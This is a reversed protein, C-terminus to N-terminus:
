RWFRKKKPEEGPKEPEPRIRDLLRNKSEDHPAWVLSLTHIGGDSLTLKRPVDHCVPTLGALKEEGDFEASTYDIFLPIRKGEPDTVSRGRLAISVPEAGTCRFSIELDGQCSEIVFGQGGKCIWDPSTIKANEDAVRILEISGDPQSLDIRATILDRLAPHTRLSRIQPQDEPDRSPSFSEAFSDLCLERSIRTQHAAWAIATAAVASQMPHFNRTRIDRLITDFGEEGYLPQLDRRVGKSHLKAMIRSHLEEVPISDLKEPIVERPTPIPTHSVPSVFPFRENLMRAQAVTEPDIARGGDFPFQLLDAGFRTYILAALLNHDPCDPTSRKLKHLMPDLLPACTISGALYREVIAKGFHARCRTERYLNLTVDEDALPRGLAEFKERIQRFSRELIARTADKMRGQIERPYGKIRNQAKRIFEEETMHWYDRVCEGGNGVFNYRPPTYYRAQQYIQKHFGQKTYLSINLIEEPTAVPLGPTLLESNNISFGFRDAMANAIAFDERHTHLTDEISFIFVDKLNVRSGLLLSLVLRSDFGGSLDTQINNTKAKLNRILGTWKAFWSDLLAMGQPTDVRVGNEEYDIYALSLRKGPIDIKVQCARDLLRIQEVLTESFSASSLDAPLFYDAYERNLTLPFRRMVHDLLMPFSSSLAFYGEAEFLYLGWCGLFDQSVTITDGSRVVSLYAGDGTLPGRPDQTVTGNELTFGYFASEVRDLNESDLLFFAKKPDFKPATTM